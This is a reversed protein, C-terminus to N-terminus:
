VEKSYKMVYQKAELTKLCANFANVMSQLRARCSVCLGDEFEDPNCERGCEACVTTDVVDDSGCVSCECWETETNTEPNIISFWQFENERLHSNCNKCFKISM